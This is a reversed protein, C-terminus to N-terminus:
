RYCEFVQGGCCHGVGCPFFDVVVLKNSTIIANFIDDSVNMVCIGM